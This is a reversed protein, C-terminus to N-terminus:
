RGPRGVEIFLINDFYLQGMAKWNLLWIQCRAAGELPQTMGAYHQWDEPSVGAAVYSYPRVGEAIDGTWRRGLYGSGGVSKIWGAQLYMAEPNIPVYMSAFSTSSYVETNDLLAVTTHQGARFDTVLRRTDLDARYIDWPFGMPSEDEEIGLEFGGNLVLNQVGELVQVWREGARYWGNQELGADTSVPGVWYLLLDVPEGRILRDEDVDYGLFTWGSDLEQGVLHQPEGTAVQDLWEAWLVAVPSKRIAKGGDSGQEETGRSKQDGRVRAAAERCSADEVGAEELATCVEALRKLGLLDDPAMEHYKGYWGAAEELQAQSKLIPSQSKAQAVMGLRLCAQAYVPEVAVAQRYAAEARELDGRRRYLEALYFPWDPESPYREILQELLREVGPAANHQWVLFSIVNLTKDRDWLGDELLAPIVEAAYDLLREDAPHVAELLFYTLTESCAAATEVDGAERAQKWLNYNAYLDGPRLEQAQELGRRTEGSGQGGTMLDLYALAVADSIVQTPRPPPTSEYLAVVEGPRGSYSLAILVDYYLLPNHGVRGVLPGLADAATEVDGAALAARGLAWRGALSNGNFAVAHRFHQMARVTAADGQLAGFVPYTGPALDVQSLLVDRLTLMGANTWVASMLAPGRLLLLLALAVVLATGRKM